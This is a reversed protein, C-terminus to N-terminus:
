DLRVELAAVATVDTASGPTICLLGAGSTADVSADVTAGVLDDAPNAMQQLAFRCLRHSGGVLDAGSVVVRTGGILPGSTPSVASVTPVGYFEFLHSSASFQQGNLVVEFLQASTYELGDAVHGSLNAAVTANSPTSSLLAFTPSQCHLTSDSAAVAGGGSYRWTM